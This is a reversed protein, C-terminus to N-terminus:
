SNLLSAVSETQPVVTELTGQPTKAVLKAPKAPVVGPVPKAVLQVAKAGLGLPKIQPGLEKFEAATNLGAQKLEAGAPNPAAKSALQISKSKTVLQAAKVDLAVPAAKPRLRQELHWQRQRVQRFSSRRVTQPAKGAVAPARLAAAEVNPAELAVPARIKPVAAGSSDGSSEAAEFGARTPKPAGTEAAPPAPAAKAAPPNPAAM